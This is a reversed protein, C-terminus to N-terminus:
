PAMWPREADDLWRPAGAAERRALGSLGALPVGQAPAATRVGASADGGSLPGRQPREPSSLLVMGDSGEIPATKPALDAAYTNAWWRAAFAEADFRYAVPHPGHAAGCHHVLTVTGGTHRLVEPCLGCDQCPAFTM